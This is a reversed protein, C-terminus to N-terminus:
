EGGKELATKVNALDRTWADLREAMIDRLIKAAAPYGELMKRFLSRSIRIVVTPEKAIATAPSAMDTLLALEGVLTGPGVIVQKGDLPTGPELLLSGEQVLYGGDALEGAYFLVAGSALNRTEAGIALIRLAQKGLVALTPVQEFFAIDDELSM